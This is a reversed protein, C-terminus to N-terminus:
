NESRLDQPLFFFNITEQNNFDVLHGSEYVKLMYGMGHLMDITMKRRENNWLECYIIPKNKELLKQGGKLVFYEFNEVDIKIGTIQVSSSFIDMSDLKKVQVTVESSDQAHTTEMIHSLGQMKVHNVVPTAMKVQGNELGLAHDFIVVNGLKYHQVTRRLARVNEPIPEFSFIKARNKKLALPVTTIGINAGIDLILGTNPLLGIFHNFDAEIHGKLVRTITARAFYFLYNDFGLLKQLLLRLINKM